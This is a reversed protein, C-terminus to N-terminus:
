QLQDIYAAVMRKDEAEPHALLYAAFADRAAATRGLSWLVLGLSRHAEAPAEGAELAAQYADVADSEDDGEARLRHLEGQYFHLEGLGSPEAMLHDLVVQMREFKRQRLEDRLWDGRHPLIAAMLRDRALADGSAVHDYEEALTRLTEAREEGSPHTSFFIMREPEDAAEKEELLAEWVAAAEGADYGYEAMREFGLRDAERENDRTFSYIAGLAVLDAVTGTVGLGAVATAVKFFVLANTTERIERWRQLSHRRLYHGLEHGLVFALQAENRSRLLLGTWVRMSGNPAMSANFGAARVVYVRVDGCYPGALRCVLGSVYANLAPDDVVRGSTKLNGEVRDMMMWLGAEESEISPREGPEIDELPATACGALLLALAAGLATRPSM